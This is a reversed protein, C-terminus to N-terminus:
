KGEPGKNVIQWAHLQITITVRCADPYARSLAIAQRIYGRLQEKGDALGSTTNPKLEWSRLSQRDGPGCVHGWSRLRDGKDFGKLFAAFTPWEFLCLAGLLRVEVFLGADGLDRNGTHPLAHKVIFGLKGDFRALGHTKAEAIGIGRWVIEGDALGAAGFLDTHGAVFHRLVGFADFLVKNGDRVLDQMVGFQQIGVRGFDQAEIRRFFGAVIGENAGERAVPDDHVAHHM